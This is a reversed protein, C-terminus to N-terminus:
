EQVEVYTEVRILHNDVRIPKGLNTVVTVFAKGIENNVANEETNVTAGNDQATEEVKNSLAKFIAKSLPNDSDNIKLSQSTTVLVGDVVDMQSYSVVYVKNPLSFIDGVGMEELEAQVDGALTALEISAVIRLDAKVSEPTKTITVENITANIERLFNIATEEGEVGDHIMQNFIYALTTDFYDIPKSETYTLKGTAISSYDTEGNEKFTISSGAVANDAKDSEVTTDVPNLVIDGENPEELLETLSKYLDKLKVDALGLSRLSEEGFIPEDAIGLQAPTLNVFVVAGVIAIIIIVAIIIIPTIICGKICGPTAPQAM